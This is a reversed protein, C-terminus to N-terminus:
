CSLTRFCFSTAGVSVQALGVDQFVATNFVELFRLTTNGINEVYHGLSYLM